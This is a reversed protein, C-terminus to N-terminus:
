QLSFEHHSGVQPLPPVEERHAATLGSMWLDTFEGDRQQMLKLVQDRYDKFVQLELTEKAVGSAKDAEPNGVYSIYAIARHSQALLVHHRAM